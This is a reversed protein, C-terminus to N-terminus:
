GSHEPFFETMVDCALMADSFLIINKKPLKAVPMVGTPCKITNIYIIIFIYIKSDIDIDIDINIM